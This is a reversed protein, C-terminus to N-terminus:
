FVSAWEMEKDLQFDADGEKVVAEGEHMEWNQQLKRQDPTWPTRLTHGVIGDWDFDNFYAHDKIEKAGRTSAGLRLEPTRELLGTILSL